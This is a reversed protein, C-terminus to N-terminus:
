LRGPRAPANWVSRSYKKCPVLDKFFSDKCEDGSETVCPGVRLRRNKLFDISMRKKGNVYIEVKGLEAFQPASVPLIRIGNTAKRGLGILKNIVTYANYLREDAIDALTENRGKYSVVILEDGDDLTSAFGSFHAYIIECSSSEGERIHTLDAQGIAPVQFLHFLATTFLALILVRMLIM